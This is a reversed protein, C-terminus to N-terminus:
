DTKIEAVQGERLVIPTTTDPLVLSYEGPPLALRNKGTGVKGALQGDPGIVDYQAITSMHVGIVGPNLTTTKGPKIEIDPWVLNGFTVSFRSPTLAIRSNSTLLEAIVENTEPDLVKHGQFDANKIELVGPELTTTEGARVEVGMWLGNAFTVNYIGPPLEVIPWLPNIDNVKQGTILGQV